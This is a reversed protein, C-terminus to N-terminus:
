PAPPSTARGPHSHFPSSHASRGHTRGHLHSLTPVRSLRSKRLLPCSHYERDETSQKEQKRSEMVMLYPMKGTVGKWCFQEMRTHSSVLAATTVSGPPSTSRM